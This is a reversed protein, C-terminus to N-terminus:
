RLGQKSCSCVCGIPLIMRLIRKMGVRTGMAGPDTAGHGPDIAIVKGNLTPSAFALEWTSDAQKDLHFALQRTLYVRLRVDTDAQEVGIKTICAGDGPLQREVTNLLAANPITMIVAQEAAAYTVRPQSPGDMKVRLRPGRETDALAVKEVWTGLTLRWGQEHYTLQQGVPKKLQMVLSVGLEHEEWEVATIYQSAEIQLASKDVRDVQPFFIRLGPVTTSSTLRSALPVLWDAIWGTKGAGYEVLCWGNERKLVTIKHRPYLTTLKAHNTGPGQRVNVGVKEEIETEVGVLWDAIWGVTSNALRVEYWGTTESLVDVRDGLRVTGIRDHEMSPGSRVNVVNETIRGPLTAGNEIEVTTDTMEPRVEPPLAFHLEEVGDLSQFAMQKLVLPWAITLSRGDNSLSAQPLLYEGAALSLQIRVSRKDLPEVTYARLHGSEFAATEAEAQVNRVVVSFQSGDDSIVPKDLRMAKTSQFILASVTQDKKQLEAKGLQGAESTIYVSPPSPKWLVTVGLSEGIFRFPVMARDNVICPAVDLNIEHGNLLARQSDIKVEIRDNDKLVVIPESNSVWIVQAGLAEGVVRLPVLTRNNVITAPVDSPLLEGDLFLQVGSGAHAIGPLVALLVISLLATFAAFKRMNDVEVALNCDYVSVSLTYEGVNSLM